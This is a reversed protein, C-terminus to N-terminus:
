KLVISNNGSSKIQGKYFLTNYPVVFGEIVAIVINLFLKHLYTSKAFIIIAEKTLLERSSEESYGEYM